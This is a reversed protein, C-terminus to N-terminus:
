SGTCRSSAYVLVPAAVGSAAPPQGFSAALQVGAGSPLGSPHIVIVGDPPPGQRYSDPFVRELLAMDAPYPRCAANQQPVFIVSAPVGDARLRDQLGAPDRLERVRVYIDGDTQKIVTWATLQTGTSNASRTGSGPVLAAVALALGVAIAGAGALATRRHRTRRKRARAIIESAPIALHVTSLSDHVETLQNKVAASLTTDNM